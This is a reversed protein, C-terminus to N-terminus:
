LRRAKGAFQRNLLYHQAFQPLPPDLHNEEVLGLLCVIRVTLEPQLQTTGKGFIFAGEDTVAHPAPTQM